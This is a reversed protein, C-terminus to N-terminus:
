KKPAVYYIITAPYYLNDPEEGHADMADQITPKVQIVDSAEGGLNLAEFYTVGEFAMMSKERAEDSAQSYCKPDSYVKTSIRYGRANSTKETGSAEQMKFTEIKVTPYLGEFMLDHFAPRAEGVRAALTGGAEMHADNMVPINYIRIGQSTVLGNDKVVIGLARVEYNLANDGAKMFEVIKHLGGDAPSNSMLNLSSTEPFTCDVNEFVEVMKATRLVGSIYTDVTESLMTARANKQNSTVMKLVPTVFMMIGLILISLLACSIIIEVLTFGSSNRVKLLRKIRLLKKM